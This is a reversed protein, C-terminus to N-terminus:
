SPRPSGASTDASSPSRSPLLAAGLCLVTAVGAIVISLFSHAVILLVAIATAVACVVALARNGVPLAIGVLSANLLTFMAWFLTGDLVVDNLVVSVIAGLGVLLQVGFVNRVQSSAKSKALRRSTFVGIVDAVLLATIFPNVQV